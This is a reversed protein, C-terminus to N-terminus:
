GNSSELLRNAAAVAEQADRAWGDAGIKEWLSTDQIFPYGGVLIKVNSLDDNSRIRQILDKVQAVHYTITASLGLIDAERDRVEQLIATEPANAGLFYTDYGELELFDAIMRIGLEHLENGVSTGVFVLGNKESSFIQPYLQSMVLQTAATCFHEQAVSIKNMQWLRGIEYMVPQFVHLYIDKISVGESVSDIILVSADHRDGKLLSNLYRAALDYLPQDARLHDKMETSYQKFEDAAEKLYECATESAEKGFRETIVDGLIDLSQLFCKLDIGKSTFYVKVWNVYNKFLIKSELQLSDALYNIHFLVDNRCHAKQAEDFMEELKPNLDWLGSLVEQAL